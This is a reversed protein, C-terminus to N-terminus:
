WDLDRRYDSMCTVIHKFIFVSLQLCLASLTQCCIECMRTMEREKSIHFAYGKVGERSHLEV